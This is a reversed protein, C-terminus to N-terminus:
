PQRYRLSEALFPDKVPLSYGGRLKWVSFGLAVAGVGLFALLDLVHPRPGEPHLTPMVLWYLDLAHAFLIWWSALALKRPNEKLRRSLLALFPLVFHVVSLVYSVPKWGPSARVMYYSVEEPLNASWILMFQSFAIYAWFATFAFLLKGLNHLHPIGVWGGFLNDGRAYVTCLILIAIASVFSGAFYYIGFITSFWTPDLSMLWDFAAFTMALGTFPIMGTGLKRLKLTLGLDGTEDQVTSWRHLLWSTVGWIAFYLVGFGIFRYLNLYGHKAHILHQVHEPLDHPPAVWLFLHRSALVVPIFLLAMPVVATSMVELPRRVVVAWRADTAHLIGVFLLAAVAIGTWYVFAFLYSFAAQRPWFFYGAGTLVLCVLGIVRTSAWLRGGGEFRGM